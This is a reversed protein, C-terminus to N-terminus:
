RSLRVTLNPKPAKDAKMQKSCKILGTVHGIGISEVLALGLHQNDSKDFGERQIKNILIAISKANTIGLRDLSEETTYIIKKVDRFNLSDGSTITSLIHEKLINVTQEPYNPKHLGGISQVMSDHMFQQLERFELETFFKINSGMKRRIASSRAKIDGLYMSVVTNAIEDVFRTITYAANTRYNDKTDNKLEQLITRKQLDQFQSHNIIGAGRLLNIIHHPNLNNLGKTNLTIENVINDIERLINGTDYISIGLREYAALTATMDVSRGDSLKIDGSLYSTRQIEILTTAKKIFYYNIAVWSAGIAAHKLELDDFYEWLLDLAEEPAQFMKHLTNLAEKGLYESLYNVSEFSDNISDYIKSGYIPFFSILGLAVRPSSKILFNTATRIKGRTKAIQRAKLATEVLKEQNASLQILKQLIETESDITKSNISAEIILSESISDSFLEHQLDITMAEELRKNVDINRFKSM